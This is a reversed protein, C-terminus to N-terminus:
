AEYLPTSLSASEPQPTGCQGDRQYPRSRGTPRTGTTSSSNLRMPAMPTALTPIRVSAAAVIRLVAGIPLLLLEKQANQGTLIDPALQEAFRAASRVDGARHGSGLEAAILPDDVPLLDPGGASVLRM